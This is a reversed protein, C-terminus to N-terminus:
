DDFSICFVSCVQDWFLSINDVFFHFFQASVPPVHPYDPPLFVDFFFLGDHYPTGSAGVIAARLLDIREEYIRVYITEAEFHVENTACCHGFM